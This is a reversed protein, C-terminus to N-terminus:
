LTMHQRNCIDSDTKRPKTPKVYLRYIYFRPSDEAESGNLTQVVCTLQHPQTSDVM